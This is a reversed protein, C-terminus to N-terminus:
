NKDLGQNMNIFNGIMADFLQEVTVNKECIKICFGEEVEEVRMRDDIRELLQNMKEVVLYKLDVKAYMTCLQLFCDVSQSHLVLFPNAKAQNFFSKKIANAKIESFTKQAQRGRCLDWKKMTLGEMWTLQSESLVAPLTEKNGFCEMPPLYFFLMENDDATKQIQVPTWARTRDHKVLTGYFSEENFNEEIEERKLTELVKTQTNESISEEEAPQTTEVKESEIKEEAPQTTEVEANEIKEEVPQDAEVEEATKEEVSQDAEVKEATKEEVPQDTVVEEVEAKEEAPQDAEVEEATKEEAPQDQVAEEAVITNTEKPFIDAIIGFMALKEAHETLQSLYDDMFADALLRNNGRFAKHLRTYIEEVDEIDNVEIVKRKLRPFEQKFRAKAEIYWATQEVEDVVPEPLDIEVTEEQGQLDTKVTEEQVPLDTKVTKEQGQSASEISVPEDEMAEGNGEPLAAQYQAYADEVYAPDLEYSLVIHNYQEMFFTIAPQEEKSVLTTGNDFANELRELSMPIVIKTMAICGSFASREIRTLGEPLWINQLKICNAFAERGINKITSPLLVEELQRCNKFTGDPIETIGESLIVRKLNRCKEFCYAGIEKVEGFNTVEELSNCETFAGKGIRTIYPTLPINKLATCKGFCREPIEQLSQSLWIKELSEMAYFAGTDLTAITDELIIEKTKHQAINHWGSKMGVLDSNFANEQICTIPVAERHTPIRLVAISPDLFSTITIQTDAGKSIQQLDFAEVPAMNVQSAYTEKTMEESM